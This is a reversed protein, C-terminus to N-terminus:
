LNQTYKCKPFGTCGFFKGNRGERVILEKNCKPCYNISNTSEKSVNQEYKVKKALERGKSKRILEILKHKDWLEIGNEDALEYANETFNSNTIVMGKEADYYKIAGIIQQVAEVGVVKKWRKAQVVIKRNDKELVLDAGYDQSGPTLQVKYGISKFHESLFEEFEEGSMHEVIDMGSNLFKNRKRNKYFKILVFSILFCGVFTTIGLYGNKTKTYVYAGAFIGITNFFDIIDDFFGQEEKRRM